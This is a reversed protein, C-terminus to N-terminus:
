QKIYRTGNASFSKKDDSMVITVSGDEKRYDSEPMHIYNKGKWKNGEDYKINRFKFAVKAASQPWGSNGVAMVLADSGEIFSQTGSIRVVMGDSRKWDGDLDSAKFKQAQAKDAGLVFVFLLMAIALEGINKATAKMFFTIKCYLIIIFLCIPCDSITTIKKYKQLLALKNM